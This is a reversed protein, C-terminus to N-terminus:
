TTSMAAAAIVVRDLVWGDCDKTVLDLAELAALVPEPDTGFVEGLDAVPVSESEVLGDEPSVRSFWTAWGRAIAPDIAAGTLTQEASEPTALIRLLEDLADEASRGNVLQMAQEVLMPWGSTVRFLRGRLVPSDFHSDYWSRLGDLSWRRLPVVPVTLRDIVTFLPPGAVITATLNARGSLSGILETLDTDAGYETLDVIVHTPKGFHRRSSLQPMAPKASTICVIGKAKAEAEIASAARDVALAPSGFVVRVPHGAGGGLLQVLDHDTLASRPSWFGASDGLIQRNMTPNYELAPELHISADALEQDLSEKSGLMRVINPSRLGFQDGQRYLVGLGVMEDLYREFEKRSLRDRSFGQPWFTEYDQRLDDISFPPAPQNVARSHLALVLAILRYRSDLNITWRFRQAILGQVTEDDCVARVDRDAIVIGGGDASMSRTEMHRVLAECVIQVLSAQYNTVLLLRWVLEPNAFRYGLASMPDVVLSYADSSKLPGILIDAGGHAVPTNSTDHFRQVQHLGAFVPKFRRQSSEMIGKLAQLVPFAGRRTADGANADVTLFNDAEDLLVLLRNDPEADIWNKVHTTVDRATSTRPAKEAIVGARKLREGLLPWLAAPEKAEGIGAAKLDIYVAVNGACAAQEPERPSSENFKREVRRLLASKGLQRGGYVFMSGTQSEIRRREDDRGVFVEEPVEGGAFPTYPNITTFPLTVRQTFRWGPEQRSSLWAIVAEDVVLPSFGKGRGPLTLNRLQIRARADLVGFYFIVNPQTTRAREDIFDMLRTPTVKDWVFTIDYSGNAQTGLAPVYSRDVPSAKVRVLARQVRHVPQAASSLVSIM